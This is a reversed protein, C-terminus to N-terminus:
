YGRELDVEHLLPRGDIARRYNELVQPAATVPNTLSAIHPTVLVRPHTWFPHSAPLPEEEFVDLCAGAMHGKDLVTLLDREVLHGGRAANILFADQPLKMLNDLNLISRTAQTLPLLCILIHSRALFADLEDPGAYAEDLAECDSLSRSWGIVSFGVSRLKTAADRGLEGIGMIGARYDRIRRPPAPRWEFKRQAARYLDFQRFHYLATTVVYESMSQVLDPDVIRAVPIGPPLGDDRTLHDIGAGLSSLGKIRRFSSWDIAPHNWVLAFAIEDLNGAEPWVRVDLSPDLSLLAEKWPEPDKTPCILLLAM